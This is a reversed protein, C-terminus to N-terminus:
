IVEFVVRKARGPFALGRKTPAKCLITVPNKIPVPEEVAQSPKKTSTHVKPFTEFVVPGLWRDLNVIPDKPQDSPVVPDKMRQPVGDHNQRQLFIFYAASIVLAIVIIVAALALGAKASPPLATFLTGVSSVLSPIM